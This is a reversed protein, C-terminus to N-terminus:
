KSTSVPVKKLDKRLGFKKAERDITAPDHKLYHIEEQIAINETRLDEIQRGLSSNEEAESSLRTYAKYNFTLTLMVFLILLSGVGLWIRRTNSPVEEKQQRKM